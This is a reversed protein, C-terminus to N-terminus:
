GSGHVAESALVFKSFREPRARAEDLARALWAPTGARQKVELLCTPAAACPTELGSRALPGRRTWM